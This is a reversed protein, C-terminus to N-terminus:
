TKGIFRRLLALGCQQSKEPHFQVALLNRKSVASAFPLIYETRAAIVSPDDPLVFYSHVFYFSADNMGAFFPNGEAPIITNWGMHPVKGSGEPFRRVSGQFIGLGKVGPAEESSELLMQMGLCIGLFPKDAAIWDRIFGCWGCETLNRMADGFNGVGPLVLVSAGGADEPRSVIRVRIGTTELAKSVSSLNGMRYDILAAFNMM